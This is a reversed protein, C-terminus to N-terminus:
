GGCGAPQRNVPVRDLMARQQTLFAQYGPLGGDLYYVNALGATEIWTAPERYDGTQNFILVHVPPNSAAQRTIANQLQKLFRERGLSTPISLVAKADATAPAPQSSVDVTLWHAYDRETFFVKPSLRDLEQQALPDGALPAIKRRWSNLGGDLIYVQAFGNWRLDQCLTELPHYHPGTDVLVLTKSQLFSKTKLAYAPIHLSGPIRYREFAKDDRVDVLQVSGEALRKSVTEPALYCSSERQRQGTLLGAQASTPFDLTATSLKDPPPATDPPLACEAANPVAPVPWKEVGTPQQAMVTSPNFHGLTLALFFPAYHGLPHNTQKLM